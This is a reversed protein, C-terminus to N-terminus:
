LVCAFLVTPETDIGGRGYRGRKTKSVSLSIAGGVTYQKRHMPGVMPRQYGSSMVLPIIYIIHVLYRM